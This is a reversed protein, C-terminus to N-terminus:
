HFSEPNARGCAFVEYETPDSGPTVKTHTVRELGHDPCQGLVSYPAFSPFDPDFLDEYPEYEVIAPQFRRKLATM